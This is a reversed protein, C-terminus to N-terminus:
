VVTKFYEEVTIPTFGEPKIADPHIGRGEALCLKIQASAQDWGSITAIRAKCAQIPEHDITLKRKSLREYTQLADNITTDQGSLRVIASTKPKKRLIQVLFRGVDRRHTLSVMQKGDGVVHAKGNQLDVQFWPLFFTDIFCGSMVRICPLGINDCHRAVNLKPEVVPIQNGPISTDIGFESPVFATVGAAKCADALNLQEQGTASTTLCSVVYDVGALAKTLSDVSEYDVTRLEAQNPPNDKPESRTLVIVKEFANPINKLFEESVLKGLGGTGGAIAVTTM